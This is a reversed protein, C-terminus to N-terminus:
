NKNRKCTSRDTRITNKENYNITFLIKGLNLLSIGENKQALLFIYILNFKIM